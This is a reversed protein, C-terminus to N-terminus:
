IGFFDGQYVDAELGLFFAAPLKHSFQHKKHWATGVEGAVAAVTAGFLIPNAFVIGAGIGGLATGVFWKKLQTDIEGWEERAISIEHTLEDSLLLANTDNFEETTNCEKFLRNMFSRMSSLRGESHLTLAAPLPISNLVGLQVGNFAKAFPEWPGGSATALKRDLEIQKWRFPIDTILSANCLNATLRAVIPGAGTSGMMNENRGQFKWDIDSDIIYPHAERKRRHLDILARVEDPTADPKYERFSKEVGEDPMMLLLTEDLDSMMKPSESPSRDLAEQLEPSNEVDARQREISTKFLEYDYNVPSRIFSILGAEIWPAFTMWIHLNKLTQFRYEEPHIVPNYPEAIRRHDQFPDFLLIHDSYISHRTVGRFMLKPEYMGVYLSNFNNGHLDLIRSLDDADPWILPILEHIERVANATCANKVESWEAPRTADLGLIDSAAMLFMLNKGRNSLHRAIEQSEQGLLDEWPVKGKCCNKYKINSGCPCFDNRGITKAM